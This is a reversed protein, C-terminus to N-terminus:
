SNKLSTSIFVRREVLDRCDRHTEVPLDIDMVHNAADYVMEDSRILECKFVPTTSKEEGDKIKPLLHLVPLENASTVDNVDFAKITGLSTDWLANHVKLGTVYCGEDPPVSPKYGM